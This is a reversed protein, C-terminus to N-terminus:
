TPFLGVHAVAGGLGWVVGAAVGLWLRSDHGQMVGASVFASLTMVYPISLDINGNGSTIVFMQGIGVIVLFVGVIAAATLTEYAGRHALGFTVVWAAFAAGFSWIWPQERLWAGANHTGNM